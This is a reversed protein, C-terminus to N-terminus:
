AEPGIQRMRRHQSLGVHADIDVQHRNEDGQSNGENQYSGQAQALKEALHESSIPLFKCGIVRHRIHVAKL